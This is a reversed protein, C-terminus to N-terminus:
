LETLGTVMAHIEHLLGKRFPTAEEMEVTHLAMPNVDIVRPGNRGLLVEISYTDIIKAPKLLVERLEETLIFGANETTYEKEGAGNLHKRDTRHGLWENNLSRHYCFIKGNVVYALLIGWFQEIRDEVFEVLLTRKGRLFQHALELESYNHCLHTGAGGSSDALRLIVPFTSGLLRPHSFCEQLTPNPISNPTPGFIPRGYWVDKRHCFLNLSPPNILVSGLRSYYEEIELIKPLEPSDFEHEYGARFYVRDANYSIWPRWDAVYIREVGGLTLFSEDPPHKRISSIMITKVPM